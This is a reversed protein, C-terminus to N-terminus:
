GRGRPVVPRHDHDSSLPNRSLNNYLHVPQTPLPRQRQTRDGAERDPRYSEKYQKTPLPGPRSAATREKSMKTKGTDRSRRPQDSSERPSERDLRDKSRIRAKPEDISDFKGATSSVPPLFSPVPRRVPPEFADKEQAKQGPAPPRARDPGPVTQARVVDRPLASPTERSQAKTMDRGRNRRAQDTHEYVANGNSKPKSSYQKPSRAEGSETRAPARETPRTPQAAPRETTSRPNPSAAGRSYTANDRVGTSSDAAHKLRRVSSSPTTFAVKRSPRTTEVEPQKPLTAYPGGNIYRDRNPAEQSPKRPDQDREQEDSANRLAAEFATQGSVRPPPYSKYAALTKGATPGTALQNNLPNSNRSLSDANGTAQDTGNPNRGLLVAFFGASGGRQQTM